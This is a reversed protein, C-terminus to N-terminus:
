GKDDFKLKDATCMGFISTHIHNYMYVSHMNHTEIHMYMFLGICLESVLPPPEEARLTSSMMYILMYCM